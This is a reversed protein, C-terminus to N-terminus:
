AGRGLRSCQVRNGVRLDDAMEDPAYRTSGIPEARSKAEMDLWYSRRILKDNADRVFPSDPNAGLDPKYFRAM